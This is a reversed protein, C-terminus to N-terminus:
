PVKFNLSNVSIIQRFFLSSVTKSGALSSYTNKRGMMMYKIILLDYFVVKVSNM